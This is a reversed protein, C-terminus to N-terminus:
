LEFTSWILSDFCFCCVWDRLGSPITCDSRVIKVFYLMKYANASVFNAFSLEKALLILLICMCICINFIEVLLVLCILRCETWFLSFFILNLMM